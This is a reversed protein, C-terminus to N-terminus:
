HYFIFHSAMFTIFIPNWLFSQSPSHLEVQSIWIFQLHTTYSFHLNNSPLGDDHGFNTSCIRGFTYSKQTNFHHHHINWKLILSKHKIIFRVSLHKGFQDFESKNIIYDRYCGSFVHFNNIHIRNKEDKILYLRITLPSDCASGAALKASGSYSINQAVAWCWDDSFWFFLFFALVFWTVYKFHFLKIDPLRFAFDFFNLRNGQLNNTLAKAAMKWKEISNEYGISCPFLKISVNLYSGGGGSGGNDDCFFLSVFTSKSLSIRENWM